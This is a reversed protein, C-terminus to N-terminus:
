WSPWAERDPAGTLRLVTGDRIDAVYIDTDGGARSHFALRDGDPSWVMAEADPFESVIAERGGGVFSVAYLGGTEDSFGFVTEDLDVTPVPLPDSGGDGISEVSAQDGGCATVSLAIGALLAIVRRRMMSGRLTGVCFVGGEM